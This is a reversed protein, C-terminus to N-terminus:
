QSTAHAFRARDHHSMSRIASRPDRIASRPDCTASRLACLASPPPRLAIAAAATPVAIPTGQKRSTSSSFGQFCVPPHMPRICRIPSAHRSRATEQRALVRKRCQRCKRPRTGPVRTQRYAAAPQMGAADSTHWTLRARGASAMDIELVDKSGYVKGERAGSSPTPSWASIARSLCAISVLVLGSPLRPMSSSMASRTPRIWCDNRGTTRRASMM